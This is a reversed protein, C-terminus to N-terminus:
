SQAQFAAIAERGTPTITVWAWDIPTAWRWTVLGRDALSLVTSARSSHEKSSGHPLCRELVERQAETLKVKPM